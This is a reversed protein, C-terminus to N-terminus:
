DAGGRTRWSSSAGRARSSSSAGRPSVSRAHTVYQKEKRSLGFSGIDKEPVWRAEVTEFGTEVRWSALERYKGSVRISFVDALEGRCPTVAEVDSSTIGAEEWLERRVAQEPTERRNINGGPLTWKDGRGDPQSGQERRAREAKALPEVVGFEGRVYRCLLM